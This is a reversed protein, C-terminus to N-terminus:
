IDPRSQSVTNESNGIQVGVNAFEENSQIGLHLQDEGADYNKYGTPSHGAERQGVNSMTGGHRPSNQNRQYEKDGDTDFTSLIDLDSQGVVSLVEALKTSPGKDPDDFFGWASASTTGKIDREARQILNTLESCLEPASKRAAPDTQLM